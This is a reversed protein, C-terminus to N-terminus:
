IINDILIPISDYIYNIVEIIYESKEKETFGPALFEEVDPVDTNKDFAIENFLKCNFWLDEIFEKHNNWMCIILDQQELIEKSVKRQSHKTLDCNYYNLGKITTPDMKRPNATTWASSININEIWKEKIYKKSLYEASM